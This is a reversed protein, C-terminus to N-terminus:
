VEIIGELAVHMSFVFKTIGVGLCTVVGVVLREEWIHVFANAVGKPGHRLDREIHLKVDELIASAGEEILFMCDAEFYCGARMAWEAVLSVACQM